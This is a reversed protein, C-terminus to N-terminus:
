THLNYLNFHHCASYRKRYVWPLLSTQCLSAQYVPLFRTM